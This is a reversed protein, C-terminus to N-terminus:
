DQTGGQKKKISFRLTTIDYGADELAKIFSKQDKIEMKCTESNWQESKHSCHLYNYILGKSPRDPYFFMVDREKKSWRVLLTNNADFKPM